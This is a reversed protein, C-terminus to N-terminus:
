EKLEMELKVEEESNGIILTTMNTSRYYEKEGNINIYNIFFNYWIDMLDSEILIDVSEIKGKYCKILQTHGSNITGFYKGVLFQYKDNLSKSLLNVFENIDKKKDSHSIEM